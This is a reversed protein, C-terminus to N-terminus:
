AARISVERSFSFPKQGPLPLNRGEGAAVTQMALQLTLWTPLVQAAHSPSRHCPVRQMGRHGWSSKMRSWFFGKKGSCLLTSIVKLFGSSYEVPTHPM